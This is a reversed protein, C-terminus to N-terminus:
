RLSVPPTGFQRHGIQRGHQLELACPWMRRVRGTPPDPRAAAVFDPRPQAQWASVDLWGHLHEVRSVFEEATFADRQFALWLARDVQDIQSQMVPRKRFQLLAFSDTTQESM